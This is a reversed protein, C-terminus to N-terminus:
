STLISIPLKKFYKLVNVVLHTESQCLPQLKLELFHQKRCFLAMKRSHIKGKKDTTQIFKRM